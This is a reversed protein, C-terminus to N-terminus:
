AWIHGAVEDPTFNGAFRIALSLLRHGLGALDAANWPPFCCHGPLFTDTRSCLIIGHHRLRLQVDHTREIQARDRHHAEPMAVLAAEVPDHPHCKAQVAVKLPLNSYLRPTDPPSM